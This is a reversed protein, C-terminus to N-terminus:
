VYTLTVDINVFTGFRAAALAIAQQEDETLRWYPRVEVAAARSTVTRRWSGAVQGGVIVHYGLESGNSTRAPRTGDDAVDRDKYAILYEDYNPVLYAVPGAAAARQRGAPSAAARWFTRHDFAEGVLGTGAMEVGRQAERMTLGSWWSFDRVTAPGHSTVYRRTLEALAEDRTLAPVPPVRADLLAYTFQKGRRPGSCILGELEAHMVAYALRFGDAEIGAKRLAAALEVRTLFQGDRFARTFIARCRALVARDLENQRYYYANVAHVRPGTLALLWRIDQPSVFHWTPRMVHTRLIGGEDFVRDVDEDGVGRTRLGLGWKAGAYDQAQVAGLWSVIADPRRVDTRSLKQNRLRLDLIKM